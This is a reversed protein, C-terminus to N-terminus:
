NMRRSTTVVIAGGPAARGFRTVADRANMILIRVIDSSLINRLSQIDDVPAGDVYVEAPAAPCGGTVPCATKPASGTREDLALGVQTRNGLNLHRARRNVVDWASRAGMAQIEDATILDGNVEARAPAQDGVAHTTCALTCALWFVCIMALATQARVLCGHVLQCARKRMHRKSAYRDDGAIM